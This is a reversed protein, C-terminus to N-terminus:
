LFKLLYEIFDDASQLVKRLVEESEVATCWPNQASALIAEKAKTSDFTERVGINILDLDDMACDSIASHYETPNVAIPRCHAAHAEYLFIGFHSLAVKSACLLRAYNDDECKHNGGKIGCLPKVGGLLCFSLKEPILSLLYDRADGSFGEYIAVDIKKEISEGSLAELNQIFNYGYLFSGKVADDTKEFHPLLDVRLDAIMRGKGRDDIVCVSGMKKLKHIEDKESDRMDRVILRAPHIKEVRWKELEVPFKGDSQSVFMCAHVYYKTRLRWLLAAMRQFHGGGLCADKGTIILVDCIM